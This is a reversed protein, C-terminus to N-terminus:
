ELIPPLFGNGVSMDMQIAFDDYSTSTAKDSSTVVAPADGSFDTVDPNADFNPTKLDSDVVVQAGTGSVPLFSTAADSQTGTWTVLTFYDTSSTIENVDDPEWNVSNRPNGLRNNDTEVTNATGLPSTSGYYVKIYNKKTTSYTGSTARRTGNVQIDGASFTGNVNALVLTGSCPSSTTWSCSSSLIPTMVVRASWGSNTSSGVFDGERIPIDTNGLEFTLSYGEALRVFLTAWPALRFGPSTGTLIGDEATLERYALWKFGSSNRKWLVIAPKSYRYIGEKELNDDDNDGFLNDPVLHNDINDDSVCRLICRKRARVFSVGYTYLDTNDSNSRNRFNLGAFYYPQLDYVKVQMDYSLFGGADFWAKALNTNSYGKFFSAAWISTAGV